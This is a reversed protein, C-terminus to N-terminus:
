SGEDPWDRFWKLHHTQIFQEYLRFKFVFRGDMNYTRHIGREVKRGKLVRFHMHVDRGPQWVPVLAGVRGVRVKSGGVIGDEFCHCMAEYIRCAKAYSVGCERMFRLVFDRRTVPPSKTM